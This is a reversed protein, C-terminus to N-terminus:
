LPSSLCAWCSRMFILCRTSATKGRVRACHKCDARDKCKFSSTGVFIAHSYQLKVSLGKTVEELEDLARLLHPRGLLEPYAMSVASCARPHVTLPRDYRACLEAVKRLEEKPAYFYLTRVHTWTLRRM